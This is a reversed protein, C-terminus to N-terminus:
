RTRHGGEGDCVACKGTGACTVCKQGNVKGTGKCRVCEGKGSCSSCKVWNTLPSEQDDLIVVRETVTKKTSRCSTLSVTFIALLAIVALSIINAKM